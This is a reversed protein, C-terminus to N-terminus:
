RIDFKVLKIGTLLLKICNIYELMKLYAFNDLDKLFESM